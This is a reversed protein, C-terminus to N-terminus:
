RLIADQFSNRLQLVDRLALLLSLGVIVIPFAMLVVLDPNVILMLVSTLSKGETLDLYALFVFFSYYPLFLLANVYPITMQAAVKAGAGQPHISGSLFPPFLHRIPRRGRASFSYSGDSHRDSVKGMLPNYGSYGALSLPNLRERDTFTSLKQACEDPSFRTVFSVNM